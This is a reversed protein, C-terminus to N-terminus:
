LIHVVPVCICWYVVCIWIGCHYESRDRHDSVCLQVYSDSRNTRDMSFSNAKSGFPCFNVPFARQSACFLSLPWRCSRFVNGSGHQEASCIHMYMFLYISLSIYVMSCLKGTVVTVDYHYCVFSVFFRRVVSFFSSLSPPLFGFLCSQDVRAKITMILYVMPTRRQQRPYCQAWIPVKVWINRWNPLSTNEMPSNVCRSFIPVFKRYSCKENLQNLSTSWRIWDSFFSM